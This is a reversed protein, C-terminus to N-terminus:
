NGSEKDQLISPYVARPGEGKRPYPFPGSLLDTKSVQVFDPCVSNYCGKGNAGKWFGYSWTRGDGFLSPNVMWGTQIFNVKNDVFVNTYSAQDSSINLDHVSMYAAVGHYPGQGQSRVGAFHTGHNIVSRISTNTPGINLMQSM